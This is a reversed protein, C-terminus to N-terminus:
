DNWMLVHLIICIIILQHLITVKLASQFTPFHRCYNLGTLKLMVLFRYIGGGRSVASRNQAWGGGGRQFEHILFQM